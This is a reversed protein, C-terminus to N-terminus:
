SAIVDVLATLHFRTRESIVEAIIRKITPEIIAADVEHTSDKTLTGFRISSRSELGIKLIYKKWSNKM